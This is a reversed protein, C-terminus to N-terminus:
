PGYLENPHPPNGQIRVLFDKGRLVNKKPVGFDGLVTGPGSHRGPFGLIQDPPELIGVQPGFIPGLTWFDAGPSLFVFSACCFETCCGTEFAEFPAM